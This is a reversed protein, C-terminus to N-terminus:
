QGQDEVVQHLSRQSAQLLRRLHPLHLPGPLGGHHHLHLGPTATGEGGSDTNWSDM